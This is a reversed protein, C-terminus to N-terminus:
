KGVTQKLRNLEAQRRIILMIWIFYGWYCLSFLPLSLTPYLWQQFQGAILGAVAVHSSIKLLSILKLRTGSLRLFFYLLLSNLICSWITTIFLFLPALVFSSRSLWRLLLQSREQWGTAIQGITSASVTLPQDFGPLEALPVENWSQQDSVYLRTPTVVIFSSTPLTNFDDVRIEQPSIYGLVPPLLSRDIPLATPFSIPVLEAPQVRLRLTDWNLILHQPFHTIVETATQSIASELFPIVKINFFFANIIGLWLCSILLFGASRYFPERIVALYYRPTSLSLWLARLYAVGIM